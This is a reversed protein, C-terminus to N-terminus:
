YSAFVAALELQGEPTDVYFEPTPDGLTEELAKMETHLTALMEKSAEAIPPKGAEVRLTVVERAREHLAKVATLVETFHEEFTRGSAKASLTRTGISAGKLVPSAERVDVKTIIRAPEGNWTGDAADVNELSYSWEGLGKEALRKVATFTDRGNVTDLFFKADLIIENGQESISGTGVPLAGYWSEHNFASIVVSAGDTFAGKRLVDGDLDIVDLTSIVATVEGAAADKVQVSSFRKTETM